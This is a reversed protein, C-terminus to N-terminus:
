LGLLGAIMMQGAELETRAKSAKDGYECKKTQGTYNDCKGGYMADYLVTATQDGYDYGHVHYPVVVGLVKPNKCGSKDWQVYCDMPEIPEINPNSKCTVVMDKGTMSSMAEAKEEETMFTGDENLESICTTVAASEGVCAIIESEPGAISMEFYVDNIGNAYRNEDGQYVSYGLKELDLVKLNVERGSTFTQEAWEEVSLGGHAAKWADEDILDKYLGNKDYESYGMAALDMELMKQIDKYFRNDINEGLAVSSHIWGCSMGTNRSADWGERERLELDCENINWHAKLFIGNVDVPKGDYVWDGGLSEGGPQTFRRDEIPISVKEIDANTALDRHEQPTIDFGLLSKYLGIAEEIDYEERTIVFGIAMKYEHDAIKKMAIDYLKENRAFVESKCTDLKEFPEVCSQRATENITNTNVQDLISRHQATYTANSSMFLTLNSGRRMAAEAGIVAKSTKLKDETAWREDEALRNLNFKADELIEDNDDKRDQIVQYLASREDELESVDDVLKARIGNILTEHESQIGENISLLVDSKEKETLREFEIESLKDMEASLHTGDLTKAQDIADRILDEELGINEMLDNRDSIADNLKDNANNIELELDAIFAISENRLTDRLADAETTDEMDDFKLLESALRASELEKALNVRTQITLADAKLRAEDIKYGSLTQLLDSLASQREEQTTEYIALAALHALRREEKEYAVRSEEIRNQEAIGDIERQIEATRVRFEENKIAELALRETDLDIIRKELETARALDTQGMEDNKSEQVLADQLTSMVVEREDIIDNLANTAQEDLLLAANHTEIKDITDVVEKGIVVQDDLTIPTGDPNTTAHLMGTLQDITTPTDEDMPAPGTSGSATFVEDMPAPATSGSATFVEDMPAPGTSGSATFVEDMPAPATSGSATFIDEVEQVPTGNFDNQDSPTPTDQESDDEMTLVSKMQIDIRGSLIIVVILTAVTIVVIMPTSVAM